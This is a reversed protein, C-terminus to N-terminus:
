IHILSLGQIDLNRGGGLLVRNDIERFYYYGSDLHFTGKLKLNEIRESILVQARAPSIDEKPLLTSSFGNSALLLNKTSIEGISTDIVVSQSLQEFSKVDVGSLINLNRQKLIRHRAHYYMKGTDIQGELRNYFAGTFGMLGNTKLSSFDSNCVNKNGTAEFYGANILTLNDAIEEPSIESSPLTLDLSGLNKYGMNKEGLWDKLFGVGEYRKKVTQWVQDTPESKLDSLLESPSGFCTFGANKSSAGTPLNAKELLLIKAKPHLLNLQHAASLGVLGTGIILFDLGGFLEKQEWYSLETIQM